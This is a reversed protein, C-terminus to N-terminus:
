FRNLEIESTGNANDANMGSERFNLRTVIDNHNGASTLKRVLRGKEDYIERVHIIVSTLERVLGGKQDYIERVHKEYNWIDRKTMQITGRLTLRSPLQSSM